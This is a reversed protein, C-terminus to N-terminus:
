NSMHVVVPSSSFFLEPQTTALDLAHLIWEPVSGQFYMWGKRLWFTLTAQGAPGLLSPARCSLSFCASYCLQIWCHPFFVASCSCSVNWRLPFYVLQLFLLLRCQPGTIPQLCLLLKFLGRPSFYTALNVCMIGMDQNSAM